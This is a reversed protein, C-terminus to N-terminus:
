IHDFPPLVAETLTFLGPVYVTVTVAPGPQVAVAEVVTAKLGLGVGLILPESENQGPPLVVSVAM